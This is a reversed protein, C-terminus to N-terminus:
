INTASSTYKAISYLIKKLLTVVSLSVPFYLYQLLLSEDAIQKTYSQLDLRSELIMTNNNSFFSCLSILRYKFNKKYTARDLM